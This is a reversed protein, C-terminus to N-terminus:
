KGSLREREKERERGREGGGEKECVCVVCVSREGLWEANTLGWLGIGVVDSGGERGRGPRQGRM